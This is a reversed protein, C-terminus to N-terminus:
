LNLKKRIIVELEPFRSFELPEGDVFISPTGTLKIYKGREIDQEVRNKVEESAMDGLFQEVDLGLRKAYNRFARDTSNVVSWKAQREYLLDMMERFKGQKGAAEVALSAQYAHKHIQTLPYTRYTILVTDPFKDEIAKLM